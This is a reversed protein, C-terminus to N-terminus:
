LLLNFRYFVWQEMQLAEVVVLVLVLTVALVAVAGLLSKLPTHM